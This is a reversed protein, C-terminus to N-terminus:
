GVRVGVPHGGAMLEDVAEVLQGGDSMEAGGRVSEHQGAPDRRRAELLHATMHRRDAVSLYRRVRGSRRPRPVAPTSTSDLSPGARRTVPRAQEGGRSVSAEIRGGEHHDEEREEEPHHEAVDHVPEQEEAM